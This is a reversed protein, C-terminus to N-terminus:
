LIGNNTNKNHKVLVVGCKIQENVITDLGPAKRNKQKRIIDRSSNFKENTQIETNSATMIMMMGM